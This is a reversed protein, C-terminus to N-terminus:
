QMTWDHISIKFVMTAATCINYCNYLNEIKTIKIKTQPQHTRIKARM